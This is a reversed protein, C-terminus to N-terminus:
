AGKGSIVRGEAAVVLWQVNTPGAPSSGAVLGNHATLIGRVFRFFGTIITTISSTQGDNNVNPKSTENTFCQYHHVAHLPGVVEASNLTLTSWPKCRSAVLSGPLLALSFCWM